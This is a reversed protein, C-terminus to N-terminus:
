LVSRGLVGQKHIDIEKDVMQLLGAGPDSFLFAVLPSNYLIAKKFPVVVPKSTQDLRWALNPDRSSRTLVMTVIEFHVLPLIAVSRYMNYLEFLLEIASELPTDLLKHIRDVVSTIGSAYSLLSGVIDDKRFTYIIRTASEVIKPTHTSLQLTTPLDVKKSKGKEVVLNLVQPYLIVGVATAKTNEDDIDVVLSFSETAYVIGKDVRFPPPLEVVEATGKVGGGHWAKFTLQTSREGLTQAALLGIATARAVTEGYCVECIGKPDICYLPSRLVIKGSLNTEPTIVTKDMLRRGYLSRRDVQSVDLSLGSTTRCDRGGLTISELLYILKRTLYGSSSVGISKDIIGKRWGPASNYIDEASLGTFYNGRVVASIAGHVDEVYGRAVFLQRLTDESGRAGSELYISLSPDNKKLHKMYNTTAEKVLKAFQQDDKAGKLPSFLEDPPACKELIFSLPYRKLVETVLTNLNQLFTSFARDNLIRAIKDFIESYNKKTITENFYENTNHCLNFLYKGYTSRVVKGSNVLSVYVPTQYSIDKLENSLSTPQEQQPYKLTLSTTPLPSRLASLETATLIYLALLYDLKPTFHCKNISINFRNRSPLLHQAERQAEITHPVFVAMTDGDFDGGIPTTIYPSIAMTYVETGIPSTFGVPRFAFVGGWHLVPDRKAIIVKDKVVFDVFYTLASTVKAPLKRRYFAEVLAVAQAPTKLSIGVDQLARKLEIPPVLLARVLFPAFLLALVPYPLRAYDIPLTPDVTIVLRATFDLRRTLLTNRLIGSKGRLAEVTSVVIKDMLSHLVEETADKVSELQSYLLDLPHIHQEENEGILAIPRFVPPIILVKTPLLTNVSTVGELTRVLTPSIDLERRKEFIARILETGRLGNEFDSVLTKGSISLPTKGLIGEYLVKSRRRAVYLIFPHVYPRGLDFFCVKTRRDQDTAYISPSHLGDPDLILPRAFVRAHKIKTLQSAYADIDIISLKM